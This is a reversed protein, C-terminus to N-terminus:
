TPSSQSRSLYNVVFLLDPRTTNALYYLSGLILRYPIMSQLPTNGEHVQPFNGYLNLPIKRPYQESEPLFAGLIEQDYATQHLQLNGTITDTNLQFGVYTKLTGMRKVRFIKELFQIYEETEKPVTSALLVDDVYIIILLVKKKKQHRYFVCPERFSRTCGFSIITDALTNYWLLPSIALGYAAKELKLVYAAKDLPLGDPVIAYKDYPLNSHLFKM